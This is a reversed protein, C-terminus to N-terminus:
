FAIYPPVIASRVRLRIDETSRGHMDGSNLYSCLDLSALRNERTPVTFAMDISELCTPLKSYFTECETSNYLNHEM